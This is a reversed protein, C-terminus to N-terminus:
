RNRLLRRDDTRLKRRAQEDHAKVLHANNAIEAWCVAEEASPVADARGVPEVRASQNSAPARADFSLVLSAAM